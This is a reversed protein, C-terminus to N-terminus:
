QKVARKIFEVLSGNVALYGGIIVGSWVILRRLLDGLKGLNEMSEWFSVMRDITEFEGRDWMQKVKAVGPHDKAAESIAEENDHMGVM